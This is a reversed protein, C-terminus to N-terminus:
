RVAPELGLLETVADEGIEELSSLKLDAIAFRPDEFHRPAPVAICRMRAAKAAICGNLSDELVVCGSPEVGLLQATRLFVAPHPKGLEDDAASCVAQFRDGLDFRRIVADIVPRTSSSALAVKLGLGSFHDIAGLAGPMLEAEEWIATIIGDVIRETVEEDDAGDWDLRSRFFAVVEDTRMGLTLGRGLLPTIDVGLESFVGVEVSRWFPESDVLLGDMDFIAALAPPHLCPVAPTM